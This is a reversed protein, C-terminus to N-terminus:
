IIGNAKVAVTLVAGLMVGLHRLMRGWDVLGGRFFELEFSLGLVDTAYWCGLVGWGSLM